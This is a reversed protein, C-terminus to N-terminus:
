QAAEGNTLLHMLHWSSYLSPQPLILQERSSCCHRRAIVWWIPSIRTACSHCLHLIQLPKSIKSVISSFTLFKVGRESTLCLNKIVSPDTSNVQVTYPYGVPSKLQPRGITLLRCIKPIKEEFNSLKWRGPSHPTSLHLEWSAALWLLPQHLPPCAESVAGKGM